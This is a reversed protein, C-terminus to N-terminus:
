RARPPRPTRAAAGEEIFAKVEADNRAYAQTLIKLALTKGSKKARARFVEATGGVGLPVSSRTGPSRRGNVRTPGACRRWGGEDWGEVELLAEDLAAGGQPARDGARGGRALPTRPAGAQRPVQRRRPREHRAELRLTPGGPARAVACEGRRSSHDPVRPTEWRSGAARAAGETLDPRAPSSDYAMAAARVSRPGHVAAGDGSEGRGLERGHGAGCGRAADIAVEVQRVAEDLDHGQVVHTEAQALTRAEPARAIALQDDFGAHRVEPLIEVLRELGEERVVREHHLVEEVLEADLDVRVEVDVLHPERHVRLLLLARGRGVRRGGHQRSAAGQVAEGAPGASEATGEQLLDDALVARHLRDSARHARGRGAEALALAQEGREQEAPPRAGALRLQGASEVADRRHRRIARGRARPSSSNARAWSYEFSM